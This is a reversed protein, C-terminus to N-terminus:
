VDEGLHEMLEEWCFYCAKDWSTDESEKCIYCKNEEKEKKIM